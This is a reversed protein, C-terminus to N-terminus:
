RRRALTLLQRAQQQTWSCFFDIDEQRLQADAHLLLYPPKPMEGQRVAACAATLATAARAPSKGPGTAWESFNLVARGHKVDDQILGAVPPVTSYWPWRTTSSHCDYCARRLLDGVRPPVALNAEMTLESRVEPNRPPEQMVGWVLFVVPGALLIALSYLRNRM